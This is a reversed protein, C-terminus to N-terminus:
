FLQEYVFSFEHSLGSEVGAEQWQENKLTGRPQLFGEPSM